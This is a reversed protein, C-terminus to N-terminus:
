LPHPLIWHINGGRLLFFICTIKKTQKINGNGVCVGDRKCEM